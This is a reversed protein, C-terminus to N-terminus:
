QSLNASREAKPEPLIKPQSTQGPKCQVRPRQCTLEPKSTEM